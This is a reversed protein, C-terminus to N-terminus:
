VAGMRMMTRVGIIGALKVGGAPGVTTDPATGLRRNSSRTSCRGAPSMGFRGNVVWGNKLYPYGAASLRDARRPGPSVVLRVSLGSRAILGGWESYQLFDVGGAVLCVPRM